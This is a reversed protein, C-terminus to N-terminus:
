TLHGCRCGGQANKRCKAVGAGSGRHAFGSQATQATIIIMLNRSDDGTVAFLGRADEIDAAELLDDDSADGQLYLLRPFSTSITRSARRKLMSPSSTGAPIRCNEARRQSRSARFGCIIFHQRLKQIRKEM